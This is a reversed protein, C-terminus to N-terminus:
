SMLGRIQQFITVSPAQGRTKGLRKLPTWHDSSISLDAPMEFLLLGSNSWQAFRELLEPAFKEILPYPPDCFIFDYYRRAQPTFRRVDLIHTQSSSTLSGMAKNLSNLNDKLIRACTRNNEVFDVHVAGRSLAEIGYAGTGAFVDLCVANEISAGLSSFVRERM